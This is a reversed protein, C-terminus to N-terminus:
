HLKEDLLKVVHKINNMVSQIHTEKQAEEEFDTANTYIEISKTFAKLADILRNSDKLVVGYNNFLAGVRHKRKYDEVKDKALKTAKECANLIQRGDNGNEQQCSTLMVYLSIVDISQAHPFLYLEELINKIIQLIIDKLKKSASVIFIDRLLESLREIKRSAQHSKSQFSYSIALRIALIVAVLHKGNRYLDGAIKLMYDSNTTPQFGIKQLFKHRWLSTKNM